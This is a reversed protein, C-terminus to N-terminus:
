ILGSASMKALSNMHKKVAKDSVGLEKGTGQYGHESILKDLIDINPWKIKLNKGLKNKDDCIKCAKSKYHIKVGCGPCFVNPQPKQSTRSYTPTLSHCNPCLLRLNELTCNTRDGDKHDLQLSLKKEQWYLIGCESCVEKLFGEKILRRKLNGLNTIHINTKLWENLPKKKSPQGLNTVHFHNISLNLKIIYKNITNFNGSCHTKLGLKRLVDSTTYSTAVAIKLEEDTFTRYSM